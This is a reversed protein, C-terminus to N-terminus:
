KSKELNKMLIDINVTDGVLKMVGDNVEYITFYISQFNAEIVIKLMDCRDMFVLTKRGKRVALYCNNPLSSTRSVRKIRYSLFAAILLISPIAMALVMGTSIATM